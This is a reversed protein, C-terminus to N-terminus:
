GQNTFQGEAVMNIATVHGKSTLAGVIQEAVASPPMLRLGQKCNYAKM